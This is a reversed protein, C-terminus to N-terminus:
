PAPSYWAPGPGRAAPLALLGVGAYGLALAYLAREVGLAPLLLFGGALAGLALSLGRNLATLFQGKRFLHPDPLPSESAVMIAHLYVM